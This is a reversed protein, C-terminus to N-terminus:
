VINNRRAVLADILTDLQEVSLKEAYNVGERLPVEAEFCLSGDAFRWRFAKGDVTFREIKWEYEDTAAAMVDRKGLVRQLEAIKAATAPARPMLRLYAVADSLAARLRENDTRAFYEDLTM